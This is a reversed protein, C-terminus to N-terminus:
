IDPHRTELSNATSVTQHAPRRARGAAHQPWRDAFGPPPINVLFDQCVNGKEGKWGRRRLKCKSQDVKDSNFPFDLPPIQGSITQPTSCAAATLGTLSGLFFACWVKQQELDPEAELCVLNRQICLLGNYQLCKQRDRSKCKHIYIYKPVLMSSWKLISVKGSWIVWTFHLM